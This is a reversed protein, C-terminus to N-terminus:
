HYPQANEIYEYDANVGLNIGSGSAAFSVYKVQQPTPYLGSRVLWKHIESHGDAFSLEGAWNHTSGPLNRWSESGKAYGPNNMFLLDDLSDPHEEIFVFINAPGPHNLDNAKVAAFWARGTGDNNEYTPGSGSGGTLSGDMSYSRTRPGLNASAQFKDGPCKYAGVSKVYVSMLPIPSTSLGGGVLGTTNTVYAGGTWDMYNGTTTSADIAGASSMLYDNNDGQYMIWGLTLQKTNNLCGIAQARQKAKNLAPLLMAALIAIIAIVVLLEILTFGTQSRRPSLADRAPGHFAAHANTRM